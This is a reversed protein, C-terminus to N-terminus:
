GGFGPDFPLHNAQCVSGKPPTILETLYDAMAEEVCTSPDQFFVHGYGEQTLLVANGLLQEAHVANAYGTNPDYRQNVLLIPNPTTATWPGRYEDEGRVPWAACPAWLWWGLVRGELRSVRNLRGIVKPWARLRRNAPADACSIAASTTAAAWSAPLAFGSATSELTSGDGALAARLAAANNPWSGPSRLPQFQSLLLDGYSLKQPSSLPPQVGPAPIPKRKVRRVLRRFRQTATKSGGALACRVPGANECLSLFRDHVEDTPAVGSAIRAEAGKSYAAPDVVADLLMARIRDPFMNAYTQGLYTGYSLGVYTLKEEGMLVRLHDLDRATDATSIHPLLWGSIRGCRRALAASKRASRKSAARTTPITKGAWFRAESGPNRFCKVRTSANTGRPDWSVVDFRGDGFADVGEPDGQVLGVGTDGPGGPNIFLTGIRQGPKSALHRILALRITRGNPRDWDLPVRITACQLDEGSPNCEGWDIPAGVPGVARPAGSGGAVTDAALLAALCIAAM